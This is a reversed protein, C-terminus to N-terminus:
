AEGAARLKGRSVRTAVAKAYARGLRDLEAVAADFHVQTRPTSARRGWYAYRRAVKEIQAHLQEVSRMAVGGGAARPFERVRLDPPWESPDGGKKTRLLLLPPKRDPGKRVIMTTDVARDGLQKVFCAVGAERCQTVISRAWAVDFPRAGPGSEGGVIVWHVRHLSAKAECTLCPRDSPHIERCLCPAWQKGPQLGLAVRLDVEELLPEVSLFRVAAPVALLDPIREDARQQDEVSVGIWVNALPWPRVVQDIDGVFNAACTSVVFDPPPAHEDGHGSAWAYFERLRESRKTLVQYTHRPTQAMVGFVAGIEEFTLKEHFLDSASDVFVTRPARWSLPEALKHLLLSVRRTWGKGRTAYGEWHQGPGSFREAITEAYCHECGPSIRSCGRTPNWTVGQSGERHTWEISTKGMENWGGRKAAHIPIVVRREVPPACWRPRFGHVPTVVATRDDAGVRDLACRRGREWLPWVDRVVARLAEGRTRAQWRLDSWAIGIAVGLAVLVPILAALIV